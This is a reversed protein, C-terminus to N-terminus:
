DGFYLGWLERLIILIWPWYRRLIKGWSPAVGEAYADLAWALTHWLATVDQARM